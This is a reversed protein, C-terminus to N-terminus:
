NKDKKINKNNIGYSQIARGIDYPISVRLFSTQTKLELLGTKSNNDIIDSDDEQTTITLNFTHTEYSCCREIGNYCLYTWESFVLQNINDYELTINFDQSYPTYISIYNSEFILNWQSNLNNSDQTNFSFKNEM